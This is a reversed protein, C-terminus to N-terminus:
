KRQLFILAYVGIHFADRQHPSPDPFTEIPFTVQHVAKNPKWNGPKVYVANPFMTLLKAVVEALRISLPSLSPSPIREIVVDLNEISQFTVLISTDLDEVLLNGSELLRFDDFFAYGTTIGPDLALLKM